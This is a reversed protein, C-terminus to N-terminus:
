FALSSLSSELDQGMWLRVQQRGQGKAATCSSTFSDGGCRWLKVSIRGEAERM